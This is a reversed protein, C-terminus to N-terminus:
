VQLTETAPITKGIGPRYTKIIQFNKADFSISGLMSSNVVDPYGIYLNRFNKQVWSLVVLLLARYNKDLSNKKDSLGIVNLLYVLIRVNLYNPTTSISKIEDYILRRVKYRFVKGAKSDETLIFFKSWLSGYHISWATWQPGKVKLAAIMLDMMLKAALDLVDQNRSGKIEKLSYHVRTSQEDVAKILEELFEIAIDFKQYQDSYYYEELGDLKYFDSFSNKINEIARFIESSFVNGNTAALYSKIAIITAKSYARWNGADWERFVRYDVDLPSRHRRGLCFILDYSGYLAYSLPKIYGVLGSYSGQAEHYLLSDKDCLAETSLNVVFDGIPLDYKSQVNVENLFSLATVSCSGVISRCLKKDAILLLLEYAAVKANVKNSTLQSRESISYSHEIINKASRSLEDVIVNLESPNGKLIVRYVFKLYRQANLRGFKPPFIFAYWIWVIFTLLFLAGLIGQWLGQTIPNEKIVWWGEAVWIDSILTGFGVFAIVIFAIPIIPLPAVAVRFKYRIDVLTFIVALIALSALFEAYGFIKINSYGGASVFCFSWNQSLLWYCSEQM